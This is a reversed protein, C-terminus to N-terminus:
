SRGMRMTSSSNGTRSGRSGMMDRRWISERSRMTLMGRSVASVPSVVRYIRSGDRKVEEGLEVPRQNVEVRTGDEQEVFNVMDGPHEIEDM